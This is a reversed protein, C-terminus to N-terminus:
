SYTTRFLHTKLKSKFSNFNATHRINSPLSNWLYPAAYSFSRTGFNSTKVKKSNLLFQSSSRLTRSPSYVSILDSLYSPALHYICKFTLTLIKFIIRQKVPLWHLDYLVPSIHDYKSTGTVLRAAANQVKQLKAILYSPLNFYLANCNDLHSTM